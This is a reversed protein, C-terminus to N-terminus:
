LMDLFSLIDYFYYEHICYLSYKLGTLCIIQKQMNPYRVKFTRTRSPANNSYISIVPSFSAEPVNQM